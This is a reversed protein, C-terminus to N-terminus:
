GQVVEYHLQLIASRIDGHVNGVIKELVDPSPASYKKNLTCIRKLAKM